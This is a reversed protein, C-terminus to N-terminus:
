WGLWPSYVLWPRREDEDKKCGRLSPLGEDSHMLLDAVGRECNMHDSGGSQIRSRKNLVAVLVPEKTTTM